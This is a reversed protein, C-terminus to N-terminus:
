RSAIARRAENLDKEFDAAASKRRDNDLRWRSDATRERNTSVACNNSIWRVILRSGPARHLALKWIPLDDGEVDLM